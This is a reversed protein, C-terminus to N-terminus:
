KGRLKEIYYDGAEGLLFKRWGKERIEKALSKQLLRCDKHGQIIAKGIARGFNAPKV